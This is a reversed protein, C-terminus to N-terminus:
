CFHYILGFEVQNTQPTFKTTKTTNSGTDLTSVSTSNYYVQSFEMRASLQQAICQQLGLGWRVGSLNRTTNALSSDSTSIQFRGNTYGVRAYFLTADTFFYGPILSIGVNRRITIKTTSFNLHVFEDNSNEHEVSSFNANLEGAFYLNQRNEFCNYFRMGYGAFITGFIGLAGLRDDNIVDFNLRGGQVQRVHANLDFTAIDPGLGAGVYLGKPSFGNPWTWTWAWCSTSVSSLLIVILWTKKSM